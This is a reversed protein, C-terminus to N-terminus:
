KGDPWLKRILPAFIHACSQNEDLGLGNSVFISNLAQKRLWVRPLLHPISYNPAKSTACTQPSECWGVSALMSKITGSTRGINTHHAITHKNYFERRACNGLSKMPTQKDDSWALWKLNGFPGTPIMWQNENIKWSQVFINRDERGCDWTMHMLGLYSSSRSPCSMMGAFWSRAFWLQISSYTNISYNNKSMSWLSLCTALLWRPTIDRPGSGDSSHAGAYHCCTVVWNVAIETTKKPGYPKKWLIYARRCSVPNKPEPNTM